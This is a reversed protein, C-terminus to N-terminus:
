AVKSYKNMCVDTVVFSLEKKARLAEKNLAYKSPFPKHVPLQLREGIEEQLQWIQELTLERPCTIHANEPMPRRPAELQWGALLVAAEQRPRLQQMMIDALVASSHRKMRQIRELREIMREFPNYGPATSRGVDGLTACASVSSWGDLNECLEGDEILRHQLRWDIEEQILLDVLAYRVKESNQGDGTQALRAMWYKLGRNM